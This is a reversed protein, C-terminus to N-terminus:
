NVSIAGDLSPEASEDSLPLEVTFKAGEGPASEIAIKGGHAICIHKVIALGLGTGGLERSRAKDIRYFREFIRDHHEQAIGIGTDAIEVAITGPELKFRVTVSGGAPTYKLANDLLNNMVLELLDWDGSVLVPDRPIDEILKVQKTEATPQLNRLSGLVLERLEIVEPQLGGDASELRSLTLLDTVLLSLRKSQDQAKELFRSRTETPMETDDLVTEILGRIATIPTKLEHSVNAVFDQRVTELRRLETVEHLVLVVGRPDPDGYGLPAAHLEVIRNRAQHQLFIESTVDTSNRFAQEITENVKRLKIVERIPEGISTDTDVDLIQGASANLLLVRM